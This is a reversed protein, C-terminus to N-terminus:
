KARFRIPVVLEIHEGQVAAPPLPLPSARRIMALAEDDLITAGSSRVLSAELIRGARDMVFRLHAEGTDRRARAAEPYRKHRNLHAVLANQWSKTLREAAEASGAVPAAIVPGPAAEIVPPAALQRISAASEVQDQEAKEESREAKEKKEIKQPAFELDPQQTPSPEALVKEAETPEVPKQRAATSAAADDAEIGPAADQPLSQPATAVPALDIMMPASEDEFTDVPMHSLLVFTAAGLHLSVVIVAAGAWRLVERLDLAVGFPASKVASSGDFGSFQFPQLAFASPM